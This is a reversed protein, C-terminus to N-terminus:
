VGVCFISLGVPITDETIDEQFSCVWEIDLIQLQGYIGGVLRNLYIGSQLTGHFLLGGYVIDQNWPCGAITNHYGLLLYLRRFLRLMAQCEGIAIVTQLQPALM